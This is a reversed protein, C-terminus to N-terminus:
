GFLRIALILFAWLFTSLLVGRVAKMKNLWIFIFFILLNPIVSISIFHGQINRDILRQLYENLTQHDSLIFYVILFTIIPLFIGFVTGTVTTDLNPKKIKRIEPM